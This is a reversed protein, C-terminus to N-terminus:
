QKNKNRLKNYDDIAKKMLKGQREDGVVYARIGADEIKEIVSLFRLMMGMFVNNTSQPSDDPQEPNSVQRERESDVPGGDFYGRGGTRKAEIWDLVNAVAPDARLWKPVVYEGAHVVGAVEHGEEDLFGLGKTFGGEFYGNKPPLPQAAIMATQAAGFAGVIGALVFNAKSIAASVGVATNIVSTIIANQKEYKAQKYEMEARRKAVAEDLQKVKADYEAQSIYGQDLQEKLANKKRDANAEFHRLAQQEKKMNADHFASWVQQMARTVGALAEVKGQWQDLNEFMKTWQEATMGFLDAGSIIGVGSFEDTSNPNLKSMALAVQEISFGLELM